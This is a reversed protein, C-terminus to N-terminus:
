INEGHYFINFVGFGWGNVEREGGRGGFSVYM